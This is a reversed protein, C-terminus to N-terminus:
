KKWFLEYIKDITINFSQKAYMSNAEVHFM